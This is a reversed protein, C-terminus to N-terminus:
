ILDVLCVMVRDNAEGFNVSCPTIVVHAARIYGPAIMRAQLQVRQPLQQFDVSTSDRLFQPLRLPLEDNTVISTVTPQTQDILSSTLILHM